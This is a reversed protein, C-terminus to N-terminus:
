LDSKKLKLYSFYNFLFIWLIAIIVADIAVYDQIEQLAYRPFPWAVLNTISQLPFLNIIPDAYKEELNHTISLKILFEILRSLLLVVITLGSRQILVGLLLAYSLYSFIELFYAFFFELDTFVYQWEIKPTYIFGALLGIVFIMAVSVLSLLANTLIKSQIFEWRSLGDIMNQRVTRYQYENTISIVVMIGLVLKILGSSWILNTWIDPFHYIPIRKINIDQGFDEFMSAIWKLVEMGSAAGVGLTFFYLGCIVWFTRYNRMKKLDIKLLHLARIM